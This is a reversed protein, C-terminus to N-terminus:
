AYTAEGGGTQNLYYQLAWQAAPDPARSEYSFRRPIVRAFRRHLAAPDSAFPRLEAPSPIPTFLRDGVLDLPTLDCDDGKGRGCLREGRNRPAPRRACAEAPSPAERLAAGWDFLAGYGSLLAHWYRTVFEPDLVASGFERGRASMEEARAPDRLARALAPALDAASSSSVFHEEARLGAHFRNLQSLTNSPLNVM